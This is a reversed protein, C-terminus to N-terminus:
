PHGLLLSPDKELSLYPRICTSGPESGMFVAGSRDQRYLTIGKSGLLQEWERSPVENQKFPSLQTIVVKPGIRTILALMSVFEASGLPLVLVEAHLSDDPLVSLSSIIEPDASPLILIRSEGLL